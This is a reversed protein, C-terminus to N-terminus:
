MPKNYDGYVQTTYDGIGLLWGTKKEHQTTTTEDHRMLPSDQIYRKIAESGWRGILQVSELGYGIRTLFQAGSVRCVHESFRHIQRGREWLDREVHDRWSAAHPHHPLVRM